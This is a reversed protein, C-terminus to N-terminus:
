RREGARLEQMWERTSRAESRLRRAFGLVSMPGAPKGEELTRVRLERDSVKEWLLRKGRTLGLAGRLDAPISVQGRETVVSIHAAKKM